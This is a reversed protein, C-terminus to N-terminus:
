YMKNAGVPGRIRCKDPFLKLLTTAAGKPAPRAAFYDDDGTWEAAVHAVHRAVAGPAAAVVARRSGNVGDIRMHAPRPGTPPAAPGNPAREEMRGDAETGRRGNDATAGRDDGSAAENQSLVEVCARAPPDMTAAAM